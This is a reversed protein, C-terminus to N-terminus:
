PVRKVKIRAATRSGIERLAKRLMTGAPRAEGLATGQILIRNFFAGFEVIVGPQGSWRCAEIMEGWSVDPTPLLNMVSVGAPQLKREMLRPLEMWSVEPKVVDGDVPVSLDEVLADFRRRQRRLWRAADDRHFAVEGGWGAALSEYIEHGEAALDCASVEHDGGMARLPAMMGGGAFGLIGMRRGPSFVHVAAALVDFVSHTPGPGDLIKSLVCGHQELRVGGRFRTVKTKM